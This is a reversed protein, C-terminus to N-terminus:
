PGTTGASYLVYWPHDFPLAQFRLAARDRHPDLLDDWAVTGDSPAIPTSADDPSTSRFPRPSMVLCTQM